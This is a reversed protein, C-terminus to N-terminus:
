RTKKKRKEFCVVGAAIIVAPVCAGVISKCGRKPEEGSATSEQISGVSETNEGAGPETTVEESSQEPQPMSVKLARILVNMSTSTLLANDMGAQAKVYAEANVDGGAAVYEDMIAQLARKDCVPTGYAEIEALQLMYGDAATSRLKTAEFKVMMADVPEALQVIYPENPKKSGTQKDVSVWNEGDPSLLIEFDEPWLDSIPHVVIKDVAFVDGFDILVSETARAKDHIKVNSTWGNDLKGDNIFKGSWGWAVYEQSTDSSVDYPRNLAINMGETYIIEENPRQISGPAGVSGDDMFM